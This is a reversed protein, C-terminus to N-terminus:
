RWSVNEAEDEMYTLGLQDVEAEVDNDADIMSDLEYVENASLAPETPPPLPLVGDFIVDFEEDDLHTPLVRIDDEYLRPVTKM